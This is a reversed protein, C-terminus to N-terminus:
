AVLYEQTRVTICDRQIIKNRLYLPQGMKPRNLRLCWLSLTFANRNKSPTPQEFKAINLLHFNLKQNKHFKM